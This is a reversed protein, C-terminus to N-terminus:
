SAVDAWGWNVQREAHLWWVALGAHSVRVVYGMRKAQTDFRPHRLVRRIFFAAETDKVSLCFLGYRAHCWDRRFFDADLTFFTPSRLGRLFPIIEDDKMGKRGVENGIQRIPVNWKLLLQRQDELINEDLVIV